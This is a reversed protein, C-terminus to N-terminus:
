RIAANFIWSSRRPRDGLDARGTCWLLVQAPNGEAADPFLRSLVAACLPRPPRWPVRLGETIDHTHLLIEAVGMAAFGATDTPGYHWGHADPNTAIAGSLLRACATVVQLVGRPDAAPAVKLDLPLYAATPGAAVQGAYALLDHAVHAATQWCTWDLLGAEVQWYRTDQPGLVRVMEALAADVDRGSLSRM